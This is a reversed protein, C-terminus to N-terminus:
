LVLLCAVPQFTTEGPPIARIIEATTKPWLVQSKHLSILFLGLLTQLIVQGDTFHWALCSQLPQLSLIFFLPVQFPSSYFTCIYHEELFQTLSLSHLLASVTPKLNDQGWARLCCGWPLKRWDPCSRSLCVLEVAFLLVSCLRQRFQSFKTKVQRFLATPLLNGTLFAFTSVRLLASRSPWAQPAADLRATSLAWHTGCCGTLQTKIALPQLRKTQHWHTCYACVTFLQQLCSPASKLFSKGMRFAWDLNSLLYSISLHITTEGACFIWGGAEGPM